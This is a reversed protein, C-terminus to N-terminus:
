GTAGSRPRADGVAAAGRPAGAGVERCLQHDVHGGIGLPFYVQQPELRLIERRLVDIPAVDDDRLRAWCSSTARTAASLGRRAPRPRRGVGGHVVCVARGRRAPHRGADASDLDIRDCRARARRRLGRAPPRRDRRQHHQGVADVCRAALVPAGPHQRVGPHRRAPEPDAAWPPAPRAPRRGSLRGRHRGPRVGRDAALGGQHRLGAGRAPLREARRWGRAGGSFVSIITVAQGLERLSAILGGCSLAADDPHPSIFVHTMPRRPYCRAARSSTLRSRATRRGARHM